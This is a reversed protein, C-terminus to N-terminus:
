KRYKKILYEAAHAKEKIMNLYDLASEIKGQEVDKTIRRVRECIYEVEWIQEFERINLKEM